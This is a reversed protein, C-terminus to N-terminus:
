WAEPSMYYPTGVQTGSRTMRTGESLRAVGFDALKPTGDENILINEPKLDRHIINLHHARILADCLELAIRSARAVPLTGMTILEHLSGGSVYEMVIVYREEHQFADLFEVINPHKLKRLAEGERKFRELAEADVALESSIVKVAVDRGSQTDVARYVIGMAGKGLRTTVEYRNNLHQGIM